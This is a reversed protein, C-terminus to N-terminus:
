IGFMQLPNCGDRGFDLNEQLKEKIKGTKTIYNMKYIVGNPTRSSARAKEKEPAARGPRL